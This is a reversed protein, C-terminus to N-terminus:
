VNKSFASKAKLGAEDLKQLEPEFSAIKELIPKMAKIVKENADGFISFLKM